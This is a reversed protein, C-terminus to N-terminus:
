RIAGVGPMMMRPGSVKANEYKEVMIRFEKMFYEKAEINMADEAIRAKVYNVLAQSLYHPVNITDAEDTLADVNYYLEPTKEFLINTTGVSAKTYLTLYGTSVLKVKHLGNYKGAKKLVIYQNASIISSLDGTSHAIMLFGSNDTKYVNLNNNVDLTDNIHYEPSYVYEIELGDAVTTLPSKYASSGSPVSIGDGSTYTYNLGNDIGTHDKEVLSVKNGKIQYAYEKRTAM